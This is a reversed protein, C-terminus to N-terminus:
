LTGHFDLALYLVFYFRSRVQWYEDHLTICWLRSFFTQDFRSRIMVQGIVHITDLLPKETNMPANWRQITQGTPTPELIIPPAATTVSECPIIEFGSFERKIIGRIVRRTLMRRVCVRTYICTFVSREISNRRTFQCPSWAPHLWDCLQPRAINASLYSTFVHFERYGLHKYRHPSWVTKPGLVRKCAVTLANWQDIM